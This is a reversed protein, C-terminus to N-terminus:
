LKCPAQWNRDGEVRYVPPYKLQCTELTAKQLPHINMDWSNAKMILKGGYFGSPDLCSMARSNSVSIKDFYLSYKGSNGHYRLLFAQESTYEFIQPKHPIIKQFGRHKQHNSMIIRLSAELVFFINYNISISGFTLFSLSWTAFMELM